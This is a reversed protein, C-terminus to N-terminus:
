KVYGIFMTSADSAIGQPQWGQDAADLMGADIAAASKDYQVIRAQSPLDTSVFLYWFLEQHVSLGHLTFGRSGFEAVTKERAEPTNDSTSIRWGGVPVDAEVWLIALGHETRSIDMPVFGDRISATVEAELANWDSHELVAWRDVAPGGKVLLIELGAGPIVEMGVPTYGANKLDNIASAMDADNAPFFLLQWPATIRIPTAREQAPAHPAVALTLVVVALLISHVTRM